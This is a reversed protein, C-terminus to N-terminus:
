TRTANTSTWEPIADGPSWPKQRWADIIRLLRLGHIGSFALDVGLVLLLAQISDGFVSVKDFHQLMARRGLLEKLFEDPVALRHGFCSTSAGLVGSSLM